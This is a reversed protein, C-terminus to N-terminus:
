LIEFRWVSECGDALGGIREIQMRRIPPCIHISKRWDAFKASPHRIPLETVAISVRGGRDDPCIINNINFKVVHSAKLVSYSQAEVWKTFYDIAVLIFEHENSGKPTVTSVVDIGWVSFSWPSTMNYLKAPSINM